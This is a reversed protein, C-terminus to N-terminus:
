GIDIYRKGNEYQIGYGNAHLSEIICGKFRPSTEIYIRVDGYGEEVAKQCEKALEEVTLFEDM